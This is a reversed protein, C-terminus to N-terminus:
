QPKSNQCNNRYLKWFVTIDGLIVPEINNQSDFPYIELRDGYILDAHMAWYVFKGNM